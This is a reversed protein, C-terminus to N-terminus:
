QLLCCFKYFWGIGSIGFIFYFFQSLAALNRGLLIGSLLVIFVQFTLPVPTFPLKIYIQASIGTLLAFFVSLSIKGVLSFNKVKEYYVDWIFDWKKVMEKM